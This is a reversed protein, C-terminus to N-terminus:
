ATVQSIYDAVEANYNGTNDLSFVLLSRLPYEAIGSIEWAGTAPVSTTAAILVFTARDMVIILRAAPAGDVTVIGALKHRTTRAPPQGSVVFTFFM